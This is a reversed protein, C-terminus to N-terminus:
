PNLSIIQSESLTLKEYLENERPHYRKIFRKMIETSLHTYNVTTQLSKHGLIEKVSKLNAGHNLLHTAFSHRIVHPSIGCGSLASATPYASQKLRKKLIYDFNHARLRNGKLSLFLAQKDQATKLFHSRSHKIYSKLTRTARKGLPVLRDKQGKGESVFVKGNALDIDIINLKAVESIRLGTGYMFELLARDRCSLPDFDSIGDLLQNMQEESLTKREPYVMILKTDLGDFPNILIYEHKYLYKFLAALSIFIAKRTSVSYRPKDSDRKKLKYTYSQYRNLDAKSVDRIDKKALEKAMFLFFYKIDRLYRKLTEKSYGKNKLYQEFIPQIEELTM